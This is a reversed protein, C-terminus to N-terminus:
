FEIKFRILFLFPLQFVKMGKKCVPALDSDKRVGTRGEVHENFFYLGRTNKTCGKPITHTNKVTVENKVPRKEIQHMAIKCEEENKIM